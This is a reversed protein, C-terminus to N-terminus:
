QEGSPASAFINNLKNKAHRLQSKVTEKKEGTLEAIENLSHGSHQLHLAQKQKLPLQALAQTFRKINENDIQQQETKQMFYAPDLKENHKIDTMEAEYPEKASRKATKQQRYEDRAINKAILMIWAAFNDHKFTKGCYEFLKLWTIQVYDSAQENDFARRIYNFIRPTFTNVLETSAQQDGSCFAIYLQHYYQNSLPLTPM